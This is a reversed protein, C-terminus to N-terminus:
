HLRLVQKWHPIWSPKPSLQGTTELYKLIQIQVTREALKSILPLQSVPRFSAPNSRESEPSKLLPVIRSMKWKMPFRATGLSLNVLHAFIPALIPAVIKITAADLEDRGFSHSNKLNKLMKLVEVTTVSVLKFQPKSGTPQWRTFLRELYRLPNNRVMPLSNRISEIKSVYYNQLANALETQKRIAKGELLFMTPPGARRAGLLDRATAHIAATDRETELRSFTERLFKSKDLKQLSTCKNRRVRYAIWDEELQSTRAKEKAGDRLKMELKTGQSIWKNYRTRMQINVMPAERDLAERLRDEVSSNATDINSDELVDSWDIDKISQKFREESFNNWARRRITFGGMKIDKRSVELGIINHDSDGRIDNFHSIVRDSRNTWLHDILSDVQNVGTRTYTSLLQVFGITEIDEQIMETMREHSQSQNQWRLYDLNLDGLVICNKNIGARRWQDVVRAWREEQREQKEVWTIPPNPDELLLHQRYVGGIVISNKKTDGIRVWISATDRDMYQNLKHINLHDKVLLVIRAHRLYKMTNPLIINHGPITIEHDEMYSWLNAESLFCLDPKKETLLLEIEELKNTWLRAGLNWHIVKLSDGINGNTSRRMKNLIKRCILFPTNELLSHQYHNHQITVLTLIIQRTEIVKQSMLGNLKPPVEDSGPPGLHIRTNYCVQQIYVSKVSLSTGIDSWLLLWILLIWYYNVLKLVKMKRQILTKKNRSVIKLPKGQQCFQSTDKSAEVLTVNTYENEGKIIKKKVNLKNKKNNRTLRSAVPQCMKNNKDNSLSSNIYFDQQQCSKRTHKNYGAMTVETSDKYIKKIKNKENLKNKKINRTLRSAVPRCMKKTKQKTKPSNVSSFDNGAMTVNNYDTILSSINLLVTYVYQYIQTPLKFM